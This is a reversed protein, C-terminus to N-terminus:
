RRSDRTEMAAVLDDALAKGLKRYGDATLHIRDRRALDDRVWRDVSGPGGMAKRQDWFACGSDLALRRQEEIIFGLNDPTVLGKGRRRRKQDPPGVVLCSAGPAARKLRSLLASFDASFAERTLTRIDVENTGYAVVWLQPDLRAVQEAMLTENWRLVSKARAGNIGFTHYVIGSGGSRLDVGFLRVEGRSTSLELHRTGAPLAVTHVEARREGKTSLVKIKNTKGGKKRGARVTLRGGDPQRLLYIDASRLEGRGRLSVWATRPEAASVTVGALGQWDDRPAPRRRSYRGYTREVRWRADTGTKVKFHYYSRWPKGVLVFGPGADGFRRQLVKRATGTLVDAAVHSDGWHAIRVTGAHGKQLAALQDFFRGLARHGPDLLAGSTEAPPTNGAAPRKKPRPPRDAAAEPARSPVEGLEDDAAWRRDDGSAGNPTARPSAVAVCLLAGNVLILASTMLRSRYPRGPPMPQEVVRAADQEVYWSHATRADKSRFTPRAM